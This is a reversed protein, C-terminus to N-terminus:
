ESDSDRKPKAEQKVIKYLLGEPFDGINSYGYVYHIHNINLTCCLVRFIVANLSFTLVIRYLSM